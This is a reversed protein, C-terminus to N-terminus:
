QRGYQPAAKMYFDAQASYAVAEAHEAMCGLSRGISFDVLPPHGTNDCPASHSTWRIQHATPTQSGPRSGAAAGAKAPWPANGGAFARSM